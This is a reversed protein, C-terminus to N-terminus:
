LNARAFNQKPRRNIVQSSLYLPNGKKHANLAKTFEQKFWINRQKHIEPIQLLYDAKEKVWSWAKKLNEMITKVLTGIVEAVKTVTEILEDTKV